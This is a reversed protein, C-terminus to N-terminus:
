IISKEPLTDLHNILATSARHINKVLSLTDKKVTNEFIRIMKEVQEQYAKTLRLQKNLEEVQKELQTIREAPNEHPAPAGLIAADPHAENFNGHKEDINHYMEERATEQTTLTKAVQGSKKTTSVKQAPEAQALSVALLLTINLIKKM